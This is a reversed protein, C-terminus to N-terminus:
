NLLEECNAKAEIICSIYEHIREYDGHKPILVWKGDYKWVPPNILLGPIKKEPEDQTLYINKVAPNRETIRATILIDGLKMDTNVAQSFLSYFKWLKNIDWLVNESILKSKLAALVAQQRKGRSFDTGNEGEAHRSRVYKLAREGDMHEVGKVFTVTEYRCKYEKDGGCEDNERGEIPYLVDTFTDDIKVDIGGVLDILNKFNSFDVLMAYHIPLDTIEEIISKALVLGGGKKQSEGLDYVANIKDKYQSIWIDRPISIMILDKKVLGISVVMMTDTLNGGEHGNGGIGLLLINTRGNNQKLNDSQGLAIQWLWSPSMNYELSKKYLFITIFVV